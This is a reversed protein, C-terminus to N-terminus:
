ASPLATVHNTKVSNGLFLKAYIRILAIGSIVYSQAYFFALIVQEEHIHSFVIDEGFFSPTIPFGMAGLAAILVLLAFRPHEYVHGQYRRLNISAEIQQLKYLGFSGALACVTIGSMYIAVHRAVFTENFSVALTIWAHNTFVLWWALQPSKRESFAKLSFLFGAIALVEPVVGAIWKPMVDQHLLLYLAAVFVPFVVLVLNRSTIFDLRHGIRKIPKFLFWNLLGDLGWERLSALYLTYDLRKLFGSLQYREQKEFHYLQDRMKYAVVSPSVLLQYTRLFANALVHILVLWTLGAATEVFMLGIQAISAYAIQTKITIQVRSLFFGVIATAIGFAGMVVSFGASQGWFPEMRLLLFVGLHVSLSGYFIASSPTPGEMARPLWSSFPLQASKVLATALISASLFFALWPHEILPTASGGESLAAFSISKHFLHHGAWVALLMGVDGIRYVTFIKMANRVPLLRERYYAVLLFSSLGLVEWGSFLTEFNGATVTHVYALYFL